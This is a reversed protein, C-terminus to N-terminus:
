AMRPTYKLCKSVKKLFVRENFPKTIYDVAGLKEAKIVIERNVVGTLIIVPIRRIEMSGSRKLDKLAQLGNIGPMLLDLLILDPKDRSVLAQVDGASGAEIIAISDDFNIEVIRKVARRINEDDDVILIKKM